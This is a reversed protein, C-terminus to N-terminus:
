PIHKWIENRWIKHITKPTVAFKEAVASAKLHPQLQRILPIDSPELKAAPTQIAGGARHKVPRNELKRRQRHTKVADACCRKCWGRLGDKTRADKGFAQEQRDQQCGPCHKM